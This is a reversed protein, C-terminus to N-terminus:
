EKYANQRPLPTRYKRDEGRQPTHRNQEATYGLMLMTDSEYFTSLSLKTVATYTCHCAPQVMVLACEQVARLYPCGQGMGHSGIVNVEQKWFM